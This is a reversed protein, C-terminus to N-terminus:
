YNEKLEDILENLIEPVLFKYKSRKQQLYQIFLKRCDTILKPILYDKIEREKNQSYAKQWKNQLEELQQKYSKLKPKEGKM